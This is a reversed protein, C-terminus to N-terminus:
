NRMKGVLRTLVSRNPSEPKEPRSSQADPKLSAFLKEVEGDTPFRGAQAKSFIIRGDV